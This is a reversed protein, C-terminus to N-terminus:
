AGTRGDVAERLLDAHGNHRAYEEILHTLAWRLSYSDDGAEHVQDLSHGALLDHLADVTEGYRALDGEAEAHSVDFAGDPHEATSYLDSDPEGVLPLLWEREVETLHRVLGLLTLASPPVAPECLQELTLGECKWLLTARHHDLWGDLVAREDGTRPPRPRDDDGLV